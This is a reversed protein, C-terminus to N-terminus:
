PQLYDGALSFAEHVGIMFAICFAAMVGLFTLLCGTGAALRGRAPPKATARDPRDAPYRVTVIDGDLVTGPGGGEEFRVVRGERTTFEYVHHLTTRVMSDGGGSTTTYTRLCRAEATLGSTWARDVRRARVTVTAAGLLVVALMLSPVIYFFAEM